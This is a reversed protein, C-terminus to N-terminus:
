KRDPTMHHLPRAPPELHYKKSKKAAIHQRIWSFKSFCSCYLVSAKLQRKNVSPQHELLEVSWLTVYYEPIYDHKKDGVVLQQFGVRSM